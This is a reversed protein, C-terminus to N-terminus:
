GVRGFGGSFTGVIQGMTPVWGYFSRSSAWSLVGVPSGLSGGHFGLESRLRAVPLPWGAGGSMGGPHDKRDSRVWRDGWGGLRDDPGAYAFTCHPALSVM